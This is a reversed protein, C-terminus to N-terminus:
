EVDVVVPPKPKPKKEATRALDSNIFGDWGSYLLYIVATLACFLRLLFKKSFVAYLFLAASVAYTEPPM